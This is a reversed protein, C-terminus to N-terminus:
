SVVDLAVLKLVQILDENNLVICDRHPRLQASSSALNPLSNNIQLMPPPFPPILFTLEHPARM